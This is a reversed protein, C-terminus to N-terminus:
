DVKRYKWSSIMRFLDRTRLVELEIVMVRAHSNMKQRIGEINTVKNVQFKTTCISKTHWICNYHM